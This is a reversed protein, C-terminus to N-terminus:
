NTEIIFLSLVENNVQKILPIDPSCYIRDEQNGWVFLFFFDGTGPKMWKGPFVWAQESPRAEGRRIFRSLWSAPGIAQWM